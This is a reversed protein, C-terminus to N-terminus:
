RTFFTVGTSGYRRVDAAVLGEPLPPPADSAHEVVAIGGPALWAALGAITKSAVVDAYPPDVFILSLLTVDGSSGRLAEKPTLKEVDRPLVTSQAEFHCLAINARLTEVVKPDREVFIAHAAGRSIAEIGLAGTGAFMDAVRAGQLEFDPWSYLISFIAARVKDSTPRVDLGKPAKLVRGRATGSIVRM